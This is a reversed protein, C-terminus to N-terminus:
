KNQPTLGRKTKEPRKSKQHPEERRKLFFSVEDGGEASSGRLPFGFAKGAAAPFTARLAPHPTVAPAFFRM